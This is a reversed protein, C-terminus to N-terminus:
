PKRVPTRNKATKVNGSRQRVAPRNRSTKKITPTDFRAAPRNKSREKITQIDLCVISPTTVAEQRSSSGHLCPDAMGTLTHRGLKGLSMDNPRLAEYDAVHVRLNMRFASRVQTEDTDPLSEVWGRSATYTKPPNRSAARSKRRRWAIRLFASHNDIM